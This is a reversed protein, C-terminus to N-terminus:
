MTPTTAFEAPMTIELIEVDDSHAIEAHRIGSPQYACSGQELRVEGVGEYSFTIWGKLIYVMQFQLDHAHESSTAKPDRVRIVHAGVRGHTAAAIGLNRYEYHARLGNAEFPSTAAHSVHFGDVM